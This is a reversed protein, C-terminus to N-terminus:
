PPHALFHCRDARALLRPDAAIERRFDPRHGLLDVLEEFMIFRLGFLRPPMGAIEGVGQLRRQGHDGVRRGRVRGVEVVGHDALCRQHPPLDIVMERTCPRDSPSSRRLRAGDDPVADARNLARDVTKVFPDRDVDGAVLGGHDPDLPQVEVLNEAVKDFNGRIISVAPDEDRDLLVIGIDVYDDLVIAASDGLRFALRQEGAAGTEVGVLRPGAEAEGDDAVNGVNVAAADPQLFALIQAPEQRPQRKRRASAELIANTSFGSAGRKASGLNAPVVGSPIEL